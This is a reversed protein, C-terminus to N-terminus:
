KLGNYARILIKEARNWNYIRSAEIANLNQKARKKEVMLLSIGSIISQVSYDKLVIGCKRERVIKGIEGFNGTIIPKGAALAEFLKNPASYKANPNHPDFGYFIADSLATYLPIKSPQVYGLFKINPFREAMDSAMKAMPGKGGIILFAEPLRTIAELLQPVQREAGLNAIFSIVFQDASIGMKARENQIAQNDLQFAKPDKWNGVVVVKTAGRKKFEGALIDGVTIVLDAKKLLINELSYITKRLTGPLNSLMDIYSEHSDYILKAGSFLSLMFGLPLTDFDHCHVFQYRLGLATVFAKLWFLLLFFVQTSGRGHTSKVFTRKIQINDIVEESLSKCDRDWCLITVRYGYRILAKAEQHVRPDPDFANSLLM